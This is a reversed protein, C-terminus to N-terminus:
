REGGAQSQPRVVDQPKDGGKGLPADNGGDQGRSISIAQNTKACKQLYAAQLYQEGRIRRNNREHDIEDAFKAAVRALWGM